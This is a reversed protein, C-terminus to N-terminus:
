DNDDYKAKVRENISIVTGNIWKYDNDKSEHDVNIRNRTSM